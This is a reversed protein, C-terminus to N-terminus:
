SKDRLKKARYVALYRERQCTRCIRGGNSPTIYTNEVDFLHGRPCHTKSANNHRGHKVIDHINSRQTDWRLNSACNNNADGDNHCAVAGDPRPGAFALLVATHVYHTYSKGDRQLDVLWYGVGTPNRRPRLIRGRIRKLHNGRPVARDVSRVRGQDSAEYYGEFGPIARWQEQTNNM